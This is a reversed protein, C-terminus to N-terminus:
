NYPLMFPQAQPIVQSYEKKKQWLAAPVYLLLLVSVLAFDFFLWATLLVKGM